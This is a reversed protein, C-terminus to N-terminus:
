KLERIINDYANISLSDDGSPKVYIRKSKVSHNGQQVRTEKNSADTFWGHINNFLLLVATFIITACLLRIVFLAPQFILPKLLWNIGLPRDFFKSNSKSANTKQTL